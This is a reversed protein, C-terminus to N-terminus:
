DSEPWPEVQNTEVKESVEETGPAAGDPVVEQHHKETKFAWEWLGVVFISEM